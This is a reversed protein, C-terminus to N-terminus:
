ANAGRHSNATAVARAVNDAASARASALTAARRRLDMFNAGMADLDAKTPEVRIVRTGAARLAAVERDLGRTMQSRLLREVRSLGRAPQGGASSMPAIVVVEDLTLPLLWDASVSSSAGGDLYRRGAISVPPFWGPIAWSAALADGLPVRPADPGGFAVRDGSQADTSVIWTQPHQVWGDGGALDAGYERLWAADGRGVPLLGALATYTSRDRVGSRLLGIGAFRPRPLPPVAGPHRLVHGALVPDASPAEDLAALLDAPTRSSGLAAVLESGSSTGIMAEATRSDWGLEREVAELVVAAWAFGLTGGCGLALGRRPSNM